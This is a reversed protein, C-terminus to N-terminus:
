SKLNLLGAPFEMTVEKKTEDITVIFQENLPLLIEQGKYQVVAMEQQPYELVEEIVGVPGTEVAIIKYQALHGYVLGTEIPQKQEEPILDTDRLYIEKAVLPQAAEKTDIDELKVLLKDTHRIEEVFYPLPKGHISLFLVDVQIVDEQYQEEIKLGLEGAIGHTKSTHGILTYSM